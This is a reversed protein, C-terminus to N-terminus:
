HLRTMENEIDKPDAASDSRLEEDDIKIFPGNDIRQRKVGVDNHDLDEVQPQARKLPLRQLQSDEQEDDSDMSAVLLENFPSTYMDYFRCFRQKVETTASESHWLTLAFQM